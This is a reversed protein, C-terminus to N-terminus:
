LYEEAKTVLTDYHASGYRCVHLADAEDDNAVEWHPTAAEIMQVKSASGKGTAFKKVTSSVVTTYPIGRKWFARRVVGGLEGLTTSSTVRGHAYDEILVLDPPVPLAVCLIEKLIFDIRAERPGKFVLGSAKETGTAAHTCREILEYSGLAIGARTLSLDLGLVRATSM